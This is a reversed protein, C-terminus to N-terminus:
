SERIDIVEGGLINLADKVLPHSLTEQQVRKRHHQEQQEKKHKVQLQESPSRVLRVVKLIVPHQFAEQLASAIVARSEEKQIFDALFSAGEDYGIVLTGNRNDEKWEKIVGKELYSGLNPRDRLLRKVAMSWKEFPIESAASDPIHSSEVPTSDSNSAQPRSETTPNRESKVPRSAEPVAEPENVPSGVPIEAVPIPGSDGALSQEVKQLRELLREFSELPEIQTARVVAMELVFGPHVSGRLSELAISFIGFLRQLEQVGSLLSLKRVEAIEDASLDILEDPQPSSQIVVMHRLYELLELIFTRYDLGHDGLAKVSQLADSTRRQLIAKAMSLLLERGAAGLIVQLDVDRVDKGSYAVVQDLFSLADRLSGDAGKAIMGLGTDSIQIGEEHAIRKLQAVIEQRTIRKFHFHQCRSLITSPIKHDETTAFIFIVHPPPEELTKLLANFAEKTLMHVEDIIYIRYKGTMPAYKVVERLERVEDIGRNSAGDIEM